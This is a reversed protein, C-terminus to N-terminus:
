PLRALKLEAEVAAPPEGTMEKAVEGVLKHKLTVHYHRRLEGLTRPAAVVVLHDFRGGIAEHNLWDVASAAFADEEVLHHDPNASSKRHRKGLDKSHGHLKPPPLAALKLELETGGNRFLELTKGDLVAVLTGHPILM